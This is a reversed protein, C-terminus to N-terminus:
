AVMHLTVQMYGKGISMTMRATHHPATKDTVGESGISEVRINVNYAKERTPNPLEFVGM